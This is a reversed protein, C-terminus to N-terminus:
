THTLKKSDMFWFIAFISLVLLGNSAILFCARWKLNWSNLFALTGLYSEMSYQLALAIFFASSMLLITKGLKPLNWKLQDKRLGMLLFIANLTLTCSTTLALGNHGLKNVFFMNLAFNIVISFLSVKMAFNTREAAYYYSTLVKMLGYAILSFSYYFLASATAVTDSSTFKWHEYLFQTVPVSNILLFCLCPAVLWTVFTLAETLKSAVESKSANRAIAKTLSPLSVVGVGVAFIGIPLQLIRFSYNLWAVAGAELSTAFNTNVLVNIQGASGAIIMPGMLKCVKKLDNSWPMGKANNKFQIDGKGMGFFQISTQLFGGLLVGVALGTLSRNAISSEVWESGQEELMRAFVIAGLIYGLNLAVSSIASTFFKGQQHLVGSAIAGISMFAIFPFLIRTLGVTDHIFQGSRGSEESFLTMVKVLEPAFIIGLICFLAVVISFFQLSQVLFRNARTPHDDKLEAYVKTFSAGLAGEALLERLLNPIRNAVIFADMLANAGFAGALVSERIVGTIRSLFTGTAFLFSSKALTM